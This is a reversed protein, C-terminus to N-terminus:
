FLDELPTRSDVVALSCADRLAQTEIKRGSHHQFSLTLSAASAISAELRKLSDQVLREFRNADDLDLFEIM